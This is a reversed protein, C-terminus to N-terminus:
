LYFRDIVSALGLLHLVWMGLLVVAVLLGPVVRTAATERTGLFGRVTLAPLALLAPVAMLAYRGQLLGDNGDNRFSLYGALILSGLAGVVLALSTWTVSTPTDWYRLAFPERSVTAAVVRVLQWVVWAGVLWVTIHLGVWVADYAPTPLRIDLWAFMGFLQDSWRVRVRSLSDEVQLALYDMPGRDVAGSQDPAPLTASQMGLARRLLEWAGYTAVLGAGLLVGGGLLRRLGREGRWCGIILGTLVVPLVGVGYPKGLVAVGVLAGALAVDRGRFGGGALKLAVAFAATGAAIVLGDNNVIAFQHAMMPQLVVALSLATPTVASRPFMRRAAVLTAWAALVGLAVSWLRMGYVRDNFSGPTLEYLVAAPLYYVPPYGAAPAAGNARPSAEDLAAELEAVAEPTSQGRDAPAIGGRNRFDDLVTIQPSYFEPIQDHLEGARPLQDEEAMFQAYAVHAGEDMGELTPVASAWILGRFLAVALVLVTALRWRRGAVLLAGAAAVAIGVAWTVVAAPQSWWPAGLALDRLATRIQELSSGGVYELVTSTAVGDAFLAAMEPPAGTVDAELSNSEPEGIWLAVAQPGAEPVYEVVFTRGASDAIAPFESVVVSANDVLDACSVQQEDVLRARDDTVRVLLSCETSGGYTGFMALVRTLGDQTAEVPQRVVTGPFLAGSVGGGEVNQTRSGQVPGTPYLLLAIVTAVMVVLAAIAAVRGRRDASTVPGPSAEASRHQTVDLSM